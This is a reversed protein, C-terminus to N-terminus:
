VVTELFTAQFDKWVEVPLDTLTNDRLEGGDQLTTLSPEAAYKQVSSALFDKFRDLESTEWKSAEEALYFSSTEKIWNTPKIKYIWAKGYPDENLLEPNEVLAKNASKIEGSIPSLIKLKKGNQDIETLLDGKSIKEGTNKLVNFEVEGTLHQILDDLGVKALGSKELHAWTHNKSFYLGQPIKLSRSTLIGIVKQIQRTINVQKNLVIWFPVLTAFFVLVVIYEIGKTAFINTYSFGDM